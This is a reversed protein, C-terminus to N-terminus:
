HHAHYMIKTTILDYRMANEHKRSLLRWALVLSEFLGRM